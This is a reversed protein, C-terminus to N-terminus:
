MVTKIRRKLEESLVIGDACPLRATKNVETGVVDLNRTSGIHGVAVRGVHARVSLTADLRRKLLWGDVKRKTKRLTDVANGVESSPFVMLIGDGIYKIVQGGSGKLNREVILYYRSLFRFIQKDDLKPCIKKAFGRLDLFSVVLEQTSILESM